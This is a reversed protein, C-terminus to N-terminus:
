KWSCLFSLPTMVCSPLAAVKSNDWSRTFLKDGMRKKSFGILFIVMKGFKINICNDTPYTKPRRERTVLCVYTHKHIHLPYTKQTEGPFSEHLLKGGLVQFECVGHPDGTSSHNGKTSSGAM